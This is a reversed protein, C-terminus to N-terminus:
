IVQAVGIFKNNTPSLSAPLSHVSPHAQPNNHAHNPTNEEVHTYKDEIVVSSSNIEDIAGGKIYINSIGGSDGDELSFLSPGGTTVTTNNTILDNLSPFEEQPTHQPMSPQSFPVKAATSMGFTGDLPYPPPPSLLSSTSGNPASLYSVDTAVSQQHGNALTYMRKRINAILPSASPGPAATVIPMHFPPPSLHKQIRSAMDGTKGDKVEDYGYNGQIDEEEEKEQDSQETLFTTTHTHSPSDKM